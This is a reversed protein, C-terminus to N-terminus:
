HYMHVYESVTQRATPLTAARFTWLAPASSSMGSVSCSDGWINDFDIALFPFGALRFKDALLPDVAVRVSCPLAPDTSIDVVVDAGATSGGDGREFVRSRRRGARESLGGGGGFVAVRRLM